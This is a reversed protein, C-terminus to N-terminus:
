PNDRLRNDLVWTLIEGAIKAESKTSHLLHRAAQAIEQIRTEKNSSLSMIAKQIARVSKTLPSKTPRGSITKELILRAWGPAAVLGDALFSLETIQEQNLFTPPPTKATSAQNDRKRDKKASSSSATEATTGQPNTVGEKHTVRLSPCPSLFHFECNRTDVKFTLSSGDDFSIISAGEDNCTADTVRLDVCKKLARCINAKKM